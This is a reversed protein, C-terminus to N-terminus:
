APRLLRRCTLCAWWAPRTSTLSECSRGSRSWGRGTRGPPGSRWRQTSGCCTPWPGRVLVHPCGGPAGHRTRAGWSGLPGRPTPRPQAGTRMRRPAADAGNRRTGWIRSGNRRRRRPAVLETQGGSGNSGPVKWTRSRVRTTNPSCGDLAKASLAAVTIREAPGRAGLTVPGPAPPPLVLGLADATFAGTALLHKVLDVAATIQAVAARMATADTAAAAGAGADTQESM